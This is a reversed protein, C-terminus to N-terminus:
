ATGALVISQSLSLAERLESEFREGFRCKLHEDFEDRKVVVEIQIFTRAFRIVPYELHVLLINPQHPAQCVNFISPLPGGRENLYDRVLCRLQHPKDDFELRDVMSRKGRSGFKDVFTV